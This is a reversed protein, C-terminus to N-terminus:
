RMTIVAYQTGIPQYRTGAPLRHLNRTKTMLVFPRDSPLSDNRPIIEVNHGLYVIMGNSDPMDWTVMRSIHTENATRQGEEALVRYGLDANLAPMTWGLPFMAVVVSLSAVVLARSLPLTTKRDAHLMALASAGGISLVAGAIILLPTISPPSILGLAYVVVCAPLALALVTCPIIVALRTWRSQTWGVPVFASAYVLMPVVPLLYIELKSSILSLLVFGAVGVALFFRQLPEKMVKHKFLLALSLGVTLLAWPMWTYWITYAYFWVARKHHFANVARGVTQHVVLNDLYPTGGEIWVSGFWLICGLLLVCWTRWGWYRPIERWRREAILWTLTGVLPILIGLPGKTFLALFLWVPFLWRQRRLTRRAQRSDDGHAQQMLWFSRLALTIFLTMLMDMRLTVASGFFIGTTLLVLAVARQRGEPLVSRTWRYMVEVIGLAPVISLLSLLWVQHSGCLWRALMVLWLYLPPKDAYPAGDFTFAFFHHDRLAEDAIALYRLENSPTADRLIILPLLCVVVLLYILLRTRGRSFSFATGARGSQTTATATEASPAQSSSSAGNRGGEQPSPVSHPQQTTQM